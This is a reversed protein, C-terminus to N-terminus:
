EQAEYEFVVYEFVVYEFVVYEFVVYEFVVYEFMVFVMFLLYVRHIADHISVGFRCETQDSRGSMM